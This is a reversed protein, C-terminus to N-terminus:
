PALASCLAGIAAIPDIVHGNVATAPGFDVIPVGDPNLFMIKANGYTVVGAEAPIGPVKYGLGSVTVVCPSGPTVGNPYEFHFTTGFPFSFSKGRAPSSLTMTFGPQTDVERVIRTGNRDYFVKAKAPGVETIDVEFGCFASFSPSVFTTDIQYTVFTPSDSRATGAGLTLVTAVLVGERWSIM